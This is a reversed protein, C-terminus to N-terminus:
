MQAAAPVPWTQSFHRQSSDLIEAKIVGPAAPDVPRFSFSFSPDESIAIDSELRFISEGNYTIDLSQM